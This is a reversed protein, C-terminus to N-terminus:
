EVSSAMGASIESIEQTISAQRAKNFTVTLDDIIEGAAEKANKMAVMRASHESARSELIMQYIQMRSVKEILPPILIQYGPEFTYDTSDNKVSTPPPTDGVMDELVEELEEKSIPLLKKLQPIQTLASVYDTYAILVKDYEEKKFSEFVFQSVPLTDRLNVIDPLETFSSVINQGLRRLATEGKKGVVAFDMSGGGEKKVLNIIKKIVQTNYSGCLGGNSTILLVLTKNGNREKLMPHVNDEGSNKLSQLINWAFGAYIRSQLTANVAKKMKAASVLEMAKTIKRTNKTSKIRQKIEKTAPM